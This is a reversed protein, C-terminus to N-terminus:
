EEAWEKEEAELQQWVEAAMKAAGILGAQAGFHAAKIPCPYSSGDSDLYLNLKESGGGGVLILRCNYTHFIATVAERLFDRIVSVLELMEGEGKEAGVIIDALPTGFRMELAKKGLLAEVSGAGTRWPFADFSTARLFSIERTIDSPHPLVEGKQMVAGGVGTGLTILVASTTEAAAGLWAEAILATRADNETTTPLHLNLAEALNVEKLYQLNPAEIIRGKKTDVTGPVAFGIADPQVTNIIQKLEVLLTDLSSPTPFQAYNEVEGDQHVVGYAVKTGGIDIGLITSM